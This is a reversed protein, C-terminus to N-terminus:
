GSLGLRGCIAFVEDFISAPIIFPETASVEAIHAAVDDASPDEGRESVWGAALGAFVRAYRGAGASIRVKADPVEPPAM